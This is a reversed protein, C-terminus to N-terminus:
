AGPRLDLQMYLVDALPNECYPPIEVFGMSRYLTVAEGLRALTDLRMRAYGCTRAKGVIADALRRGWGRGRWSPRVYLRKMECAGEDLPRMGVGGAVGAGVRALLLRGHPPAYKGPLNRVEEDFGQFCLDVDLWAQYETFLARIHEMDAAAEAHAIVM